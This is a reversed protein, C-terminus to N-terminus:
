LYRAIKSELMDRPMAGVLQDALQGNKFVLLTPIGMIGYESATRPNADVDLKGFLVKGKYDGALEEVIPAIMHCPACWEAWCDVVVLPYKRIIEKLTDDTVEIPVDSWNEENIM